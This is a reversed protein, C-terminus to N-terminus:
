VHLARETAVAKRGLERCRNIRYSRAIEDLNNAVNLGFMLKNTIFDHQYACPYNKNVMKDYHLILIQVIKDLISQRLDLRSLSPM